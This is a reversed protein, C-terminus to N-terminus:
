YAIKAPEGVMGMVSAIFIYSAGNAACFQKKSLIRAIEFGSVVNINFLAQYDIQRLSSLPRTIDIGASHIFGHIKGYKKLPEGLAKELSEINMLDYSLATHNGKKLKELTKDLNSQIRGILILNAGFESCIISCSAGIGSSAGTVLINKNELSFPVM